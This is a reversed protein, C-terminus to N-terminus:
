KVKKRLIILYSDYVVKEWEPSHVYKNIEENFKRENMPWIDKGNIVAIYTADYIHPFYYNKPRFSLHPNITGSSSVSADAPILDLYKYIRAVPYPSQYMSKRYFAFNTNDYNLPRGEEYLKYITIGASNICVIIVVVARIWKNKIGSIILFVAIPLMSVFEISYYSEISWRVPMDNFMKKLVLPVILLLYKPRYFLLFGGSIFYMFYFETKSNDYSSIGSQNQYLLKFSEIPHKFLFVIAEFPTAGMSSYNFLNYKKYPSELLPIVIKFVLLFYVVSAVIVIAASRRYDIEKFHTLVLFIGIFATWIAMDERATLIFLLVFFSALFKKKEFYYLFVPISSSAIIALNCATCFSAWRGYLTFYQLLALWSLLKSSTKLEILKYLALGGTLIILTQIISLTYTGTLWTLL